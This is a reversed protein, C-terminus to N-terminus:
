SSGNGQRVLEVLREFSRNLLSFLLWMVVPALLLVLYSFVHYQTEKQIPLVYVSVFAAILWLALVIPALKFTWPVYLVTVREIFNKGDGKQNTRHCKKVGHIILLITLISCAFAALSYHLPKRPGFSPSFWYFPGSMGYMALVFIIYKAKAWSDLSDKALATELKASSFLIM